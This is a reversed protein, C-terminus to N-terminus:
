VRMSGAGGQTARGGVVGRGSGWVCVCVRVCVDHRRQIGQPKVVRVAGPEQAQHLAQRAAPQQAVVWGGLLRVHDCLHASDLRAAAAAADRAMHSGTHLQRRTRVTHTHPPPPPQHVGGAAARTTTEGCVEPSRSRWRRRATWPHCSHQPPPSRCAAAACPRPRPGAPTHVHPPPPRAATARSLARRRRGPAAAAWGALSVHQPQWQARTHTAGARKSAARARWWAPWDSTKISRRGPMGSPTSSAKSPPKQSDRTHSLLPLQHRPMRRHPRRAVCSAICCTSHRNLRVWVCVVCVGRWAQRTNGRATRSCPDAQHRGAWGEAAGQEAPEDAGREHARQSGPQWGRQPRAQPRPASHELHARRSAPQRSRQREVAHRGVGVSEQHTHTHTHAPQTASPAKSSCTSASPTIVSKRVSGSPACTLARVPCPAASPGATSSCACAATCM